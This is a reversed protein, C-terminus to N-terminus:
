KASRSDLYKTYAIAAFEIVQAVVAGLLMAKDVMVAQTADDLTVGLYLFVVKVVNAILWVWMRKSTLLATTIPPVCPASQSKSKTTAM